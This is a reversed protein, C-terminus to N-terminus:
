FFIIFICREIQFMLGGGGGGVKTQHREKHSECVVIESRAKWLTVKHKLLTSTQRCYLFQLHAWDAIVCMLILYYKMKLVNWTGIFANIPPWVCVVRRSISNNANQIIYLIHHKYEPDWDTNNQLNNVSEYYHHQMADHTQLWIDGRIVTMNSIQKGVKCATCHSMWRWQLVDCYNNELLSSDNVQVSKSVLQKSLILVWHTYINAKETHHFWLQLFWSDLALVLDSHATTQYFNWQGCTSLQITQLLHSPCVWSWEMGFGTGVGM